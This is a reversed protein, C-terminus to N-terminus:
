HTVTCLIHRRRLPAIIQQLGVDHVVLAVAVVVVVARIIPPLVAAILPLTIM